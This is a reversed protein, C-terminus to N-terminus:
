ALLQRMGMEILLRHNEQTLHVVTGCESCFSMMDKNVRGGVEQTFRVDEQFQNAVLGADLM